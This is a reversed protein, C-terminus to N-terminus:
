RKVVGVPKGYDRKTIDKQYLVFVRLRASERLVAAMRQLVDLPQTLIDVITPPLPEIVDLPM